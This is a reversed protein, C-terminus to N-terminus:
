MIARVTAKIKELLDRLTTITTCPNIITTRLWTKSGIEAQVIYFSGDSVIKERIKENLRNATLDDSGEPTYRFCVINSM